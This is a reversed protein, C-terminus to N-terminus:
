AIAHEQLINTHLELRAYKYKVKCIQIQINTNTNPKSRANHEQMSQYNEDFIQRRLHVEAASNYQRGHGRAFQASKLIKEEIKSGLM